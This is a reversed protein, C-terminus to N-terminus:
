KEVLSFNPFRYEKLIKGIVDQFGIPVVCVTDVTSLLNQRTPSLVVGKIGSVERGQKNVDGDFVTYGALHALSILNTATACAGWLGLRKASAMRRNFKKLLIKLSKSYRALPDASKLNKVKKFEVAWKRATVYFDSKTEKIKEIRLGALLFINRLSIKTFHSVHEHMFLGPDGLAMQRQANPVAVMVQGNDRLVASLSKLFDVPSQVHELVWLSVVTDFREGTFRQPDFFECFIKAKFGNKKFPVQPSPEVGAAKQAGRKFFEYLLYGNQCGVELVSSPKFLFEANEFFAKARQQGWGVPSMPTSADSSHSRYVKEMVNMNETYLIQQTLGCYCCTALQAKLQRRKLLSEIKPDKIGYYFPLHGLDVKKTINLPKDCALCRKTKKPSRKAM